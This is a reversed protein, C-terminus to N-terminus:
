YGIIIINYSDLRCFHPLKPRKPRDLELEEEPYLDMDSLLAMETNRLMKRLKCGEASGDYAAMGALVDVEKRM